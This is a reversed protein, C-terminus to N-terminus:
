MPIYNIKPKGGASDGNKVLRFGVRNWAEPDFFLTRMKTKQDTISRMGLYCMLQGFARNTSKRHGYIRNAITGSQEVTIYCGFLDLVPHKIAGLIKAEVPMEEIFDKFMQIDKAYSKKPEWLAVGNKLVFVDIKRTSDKLFTKNGGGRAVKSFNGVVATTPATPVQTLVCCTLLVGPRKM